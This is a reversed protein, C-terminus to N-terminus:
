RNLGFALLVPPDLEVESRVWPYVIGGTRGGPTAVGPPRGIM